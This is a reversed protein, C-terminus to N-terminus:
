NMPASQLKTRRAKVIELIRKFEDTDANETLEYIITESTTIEAGSTEMRRFATERDVIGYSSTADKAVLVRHRHDRVLDLVTQTVCIHTEIGCVIMTKRGIANLKTMFESNDCCSFSIKRTPANPLLSKVEPITDGLKEQETALIPVRLVIAAHVLAKINDVILEHQNITNILRDQVDVVVLVCDNRKVRGVM